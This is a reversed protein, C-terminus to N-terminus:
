DANIVDDGGGAKNDTIPIRSKEVASISRLGSADPFHSGFLRTELGRKDLCGERVIEMFQGFRAAMQRRFHEGALEGLQAARVQRNVNVVELRGVPAEDRRFELAEFQGVEM